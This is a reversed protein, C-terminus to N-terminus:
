DPEENTTLEKISKMDDLACIFLKKGKLYDSAITINLWAVGDIYEESNDPEVVVFPKNMSDFCHM